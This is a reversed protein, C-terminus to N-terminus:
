VVKLQDHPAVGADVFMGELSALDDATLPENWRVKHLAPHEMHQRLFALAKERVREPHVGPSFARVQVAEVSRLQDEFNTYVPNRRKKDVFKVLARLRLRVNELEPVTVHQWFHTTQVEQILQIQERVMPIVQKEEMASALEIVSEKLEDFR